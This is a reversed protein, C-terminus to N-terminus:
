LTHKKSYLLQHEKSHSTIPYFRFHLLWLKTLQDISHCRSGWGLVGQGAMGVGQGACGRGSVGGSGWWVKGGVGYVM